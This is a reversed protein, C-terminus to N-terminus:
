RDLSYKNSLNLITLKENSQLANSIAIAGNDGIENM